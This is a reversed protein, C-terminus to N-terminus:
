DNSHEKIKENFYEVIELMPEVKKLFREVDGMNFFSTVGDIFLAYDGGEVEIVSLELMNDMNDTLVDIAKIELM